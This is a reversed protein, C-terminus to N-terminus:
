KKEQLANMIETQEQEIKLEKIRRETIEDVLLVGDNCKIQIRLPNGSMTKVELEEGDKLIVTKGNESDLIRM